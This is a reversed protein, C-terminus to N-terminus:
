DSLGNRRLKIQLRGLRHELELRWYRREATPFVGSNVLDIASRTWQIAEQYNKMRHEYIKALEIHAILHQQRAAKKLLPVAAALNDRRKHIQALRHIADLLIPKPFTVDTELQTENTEVLAMIHSYLQIATESDGIDEYLRALAVLDVSHDIQAGLPNSFLGALHNFLAAMSVVDMANHYFVNKLPQADGSYLYNVYIQPIAWGPVDEETRSSGLIQEELNGLTRSPLRDRWLRRSLHLLDVSALNTLPSHWGQLLFRANIIPVDFAKGNFTVLAQCPALFQEIALLLAPEEIPDRLFFQSLLFYEDQFRGLGILFPLTGTGGSLGTTETDLFAFAEPGLKSIIEHGSWSALTGLYNTLRDKFEAPFGPQFYQERFYAVGMSNKIPQLSLVTQTSEPIITQHKPLDRAGVKVGLSKLRDSLSAM